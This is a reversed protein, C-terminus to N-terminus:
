NSKILTHDIKRIKNELEALEIKMAQIDDSIHIFGGTTFPIQYKMMFELFEELERINGRLEIM